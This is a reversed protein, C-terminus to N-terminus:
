ADKKPDPLKANQLAKRTLPKYRKEVQKCAKIAHEMDEKDKKQQARAVTGLVTGGKVIPASGGSIARSMRAGCNPCRVDPSERISHSVEGTTGCDPCQYEYTVM